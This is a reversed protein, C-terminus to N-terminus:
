HDVKRYARPHRSRSDYIAFPYVQQGNDIWDLWLEAFAVLVQSEDVPFSITPPIPYSVTVTNLYGNPGIVHAELGELELQHMALFNDLEDCRYGGSKVRSLRPHRREHGDGRM